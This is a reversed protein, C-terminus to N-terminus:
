IYVLLPVFAYTGFVILFELKVFKINYIFIHLTILYQM